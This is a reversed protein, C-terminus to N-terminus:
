RRELVARRPVQRWVRALDLSIRLKAHRWQVPVFAAINIIDAGQNFGRKLRQRVMDRFNSVAGVIEVGSGESSTFALGNSIVSKLFPTM